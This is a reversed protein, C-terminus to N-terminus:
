ELDDLPIDQQVGSSPMPEPSAKDLYLEFQNADKGAMPGKNLKEKGGFVIKCVKGRELYTEVLYNLQGASNLVKREGTSEEFYHQAGFKGDKTELYKGKEILVAGSTLKSYQFYTPQTVLEM